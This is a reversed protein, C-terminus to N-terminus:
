PLPTLLNHVERPRTATSTRETIPDPLSFSRAGASKLRGFNAILVDSFKHGTQLPLIGLLTVHRSVTLHAFPITAHQQLPIITM